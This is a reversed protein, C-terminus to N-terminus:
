RQRSGLKEREKKKKGESRYMKYDLASWIKGLEIKKGAKDRKRKRDERCTHKRM